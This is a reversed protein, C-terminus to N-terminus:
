RASTRSTRWSCACGTSAPPSAAMRRTGYEFAELMHGFRERAVEPELGILGFVKEQLTAITSGSRAAALRTITRAGPRVAPRAGQWSRYGAAPYGRADPRHVPPPQSGLTERGRELDRLPLRDGLLLGACDPDRLGLREALLVRLRGLAEFVVAPQDAVFLLLDGPEAELRQMIAQLTEPPLFNAFSSRQEGTM